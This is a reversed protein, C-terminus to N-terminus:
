VGCGYCDRAFICEDIGNGPYQCGWNNNGISTCGKKCVGGFWYATTWWPVYPRNYRPLPYVYGINRRYPGRGMGPGWGRGRYPGRGHGWGRGPGWGRRHNYLHQGGNIGEKMDNSYIQYVFFLALITIFLLGLIFLTTRHM